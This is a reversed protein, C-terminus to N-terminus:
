NHHSIHGGRTAACWVLGPATGGPSTGLRTACGYQRAADPLSPNGMSAWRSIAVRSHHNYRRRPSFGDHHLEVCARAWTVRGPYDTRQAYMFVKQTTDGLYQQAADSLSRAEM